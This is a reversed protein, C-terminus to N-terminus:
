PHRGEWDSKYGLAKAKEGPDVKQGKKIYGSTVVIVRGPRFFFFARAINTSGVRLEFLDEADDVLRTLPLKHNQRNRVKALGALLLKHLVPEKTRIDDLFDQM